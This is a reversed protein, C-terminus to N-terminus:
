PVWIAYARGGNHHTLIAGICSDATRGNSDYWLYDVEHMDCEGGMAYDTWTSALRPDAAIRAAFVAAYANGIEESVPRVEVAADQPASKMPLTLLFALAARANPFEHIQM